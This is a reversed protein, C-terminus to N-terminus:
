PSDNLGINSRILLAKNDGAVSAQGTGQFVNGVLGVRELSEFRAPVSAGDVQNASVAANKIQVLSLGTQCERLSNGQVVAGAVGQLALGVKTEAIVNQSVSVQESDKIVIGRSLGRITNGSLNAMRCSLLELGSVATERGLGGFNNGLVTVEECKRAILVSRATNVFSNGNVTVKRRQNLFCTTLGIPAVSEENMTQNGAIIVRENVYPDDDHGKDLGRTRPPDPADGGITIPNRFNRIYNNTIKIDRLAIGEQPKAQSTARLYVCKDAGGSSIDNDAVTIGRCTGTM